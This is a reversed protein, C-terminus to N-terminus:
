RSLAPVFGSGVRQVAERELADRFRVWVRDPDAERFEQNVEIRAGRMDVNVSPRAEPATGTGGGGETTPQNSGRLASMFDAFWRDIGDSVGGGQGQPLSVSPIVMGTAGPLWRIFRALVASFLRLQTFLDHFVERIVRAMPALARGVLMIVVSVVRAVKSLFLLVDALIRFGSVVVGVIIFGLTELWPSVAAWIGVLAAWFNNVAGVLARGSGEFYGRLRDGQRQLAVFVSVIITVTGAAVGIATVLAGLAVELAAAVALIGVVGAPLGIAALAGGGAVAAGGGAAATAGGGIGLMGLIGAGGGGALLPLLASVAGGITSIIAGAGALVAGLVGAGIKLAVGAILMSRVMPALRRFTAIVSDIRAGITDLNTIVWVFARRMREIV